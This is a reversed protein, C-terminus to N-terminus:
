NASMGSSRAVTYRKPLNRKTTHLGIEGHGGALLLL